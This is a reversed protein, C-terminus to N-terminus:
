GEASFSVNEEAFFSSEESFSIVYVRGLDYVEGFSSGSILLV